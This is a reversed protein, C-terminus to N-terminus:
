PESYPTEFNLTEPKPNLIYPTSGSGLGQFRKWGRSIGLGAGGQVLRFAFVQGDWTGKYVAETVEKFRVGIKPFRCTQGTARSSVFPGCLSSHDLARLGEKSVQPRNHILRTLHAPTRPKRSAGKDLDKFSLLIPVRFGPVGLICYSYLLFIGVM